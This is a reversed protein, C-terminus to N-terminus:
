ANTVVPDIISLCKDMIAFGERVEEETAILPPNCFIQDWRMLTYLGNERLATKFEVVKPHAAGNFGQLWAGSKADGQLEIVGFMGHARCQKVSPHKAAIDAMCDEFVSQMDASRQVINHRLNYLIAAHASALTVAHSNYTSGTPLNNTTFYDRIHDRVGVCGLPLFAGNIGKAMTVIDPIVTPDTHEFGFMKGTRGFGTMVEDCVMMIGHQDCLARIGELYGRPPKLIGNTGTIPEMFFAAINHGGEYAIVEALYQLNVRTLEDEDTIGGWDFNYPFPDMVHVVGAIGPETPWRRPDGTLAMTGTTGGHYSRYKALIKKRGTVTRAIRMAAENSEAGGSPYFFSNIDGPVIDAMLASLRAKIPTTVACPYGYAAGELQEIIADKIERNSHGYHSCMAMSNFDIYRKGNTDYFYCGEAKSMHIAAGSNANMNGWTFLTHKDIMDREATTSTGDMTGSGKARSEARSIIEEAPRRAPTGAPLVSKAPPIVRPGGGKYSGNVASTLARRLM